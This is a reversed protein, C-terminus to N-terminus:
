FYIFQIIVLLIIIINYFILEEKCRGKYYSLLKKDKVINNIYSIYKNLINALIKNQYKPLIGTNEIKDLLYLTIGNIFIPVLIALLLLYKFYYINNKGTINGNTTLNVPEENTSAYVTYIQYFLVLFFIIICFITIYLIFFQLFNLYINKSYKLKNLVFNSIVLGSASILFSILLSFLGVDFYHAIYPSASYSILILFIFISINILFNQYNFM